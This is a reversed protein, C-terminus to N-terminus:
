LLSADGIEKALVSVGDLVKEDVAVCEGEVSVDPAREIEGADRHQDTAEGGEGGGYGGGSL